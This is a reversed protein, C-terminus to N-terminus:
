CVIRIFGKPKFHIKDGPSFQAANVRELSKWADMERTGSNKDDGKISDVFYTEASANASSFLFFTVMLISLYAKSSKM